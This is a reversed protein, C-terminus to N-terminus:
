LRLRKGNGRTFSGSNSMKKLPASITKVQSTLIWIHDLPHKTINIKVIEKESIDEKLSSYFEM